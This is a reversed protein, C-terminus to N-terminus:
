KRPPNSKMLGGLNTTAGFSVTERLSVLLPVFCDVRWNFPANAGCPGVYFLTGFLSLFQNGKM